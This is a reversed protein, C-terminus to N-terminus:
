RYDGLARIFLSLGKVHSQTEAWARANYSLFDYVSNDLSTCCLILNALSQSSREQCILGNFNDKVCESIGPANFTILPVGCCMAEVCVRPIGEGFSPLIVFDLERYIATIDDRFPIYEIFVNDPNRFKSRMSKAQRTGVVSILIKASPPILDIADLLLGFGKDRIPRGVYGFRIAASSGFGRRRLTDPPYERASPYFFTNENHFGGFGLVHFTKENCGQNILILGDHLNQSTWGESYKIAIKMFFIFIRRVFKNQYYLLGLGTLHVFYKKGTIALLPFLLLIVKPTFLQVYSDSFFENQRLVLYVFDRYSGLVHTRIPVKYYACLDLFKARHIERNAESNTVLISKM